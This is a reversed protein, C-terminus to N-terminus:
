VVPFVPKRKGTFAAFGEKFDPESFARVFHRRTEATDDTAGDLIMHIIQKTGRVSFQSAEAIQGAYTEVAADLDAAPVVRDVLGVALAEAADLIRGTYLIDKARAPGVTDVLRKTDALSYILGLKAPTIALKATPDAFRLDCCLAIGCGGGICAGRIKAITPKANRALRRQAQYTTEAVAEAVKPDAFSKEFEDIDAGAAFAQGAGTVVIVKVAPDEDLADVVTILRQWMDLNLANRKAPRNLHLTAVAGTRDVYIAERAESM